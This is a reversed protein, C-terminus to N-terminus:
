QRGKSSLARSISPKRKPLKRSCAVCRALHDRVADAQVRRLKGALYPKLMALVDRHDMEDSAQEAVFEEKFRLRARYVLTEVASESINMAKAIKRYSFGQLERLTLVLRYKEPLRQAVQYVTRRLEHAEAQVAPDFRQAPAPIEYLVERDAPQREEM